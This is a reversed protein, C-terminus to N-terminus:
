MAEDSNSDVRQCAKRWNCPSLTRGVRLRLSVVKVDVDLSGINGFGFSGDADGLLINSELAGGLLTYCVADGQVEKGLDIGLVAFDVVGVTLDLENEPLLLELLLEPGAQELALLLHV